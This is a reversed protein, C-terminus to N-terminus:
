ETITEQIIRLGEWASLEGKKRKDLQVFFTYLKQNRMMLISLEDHFAQIEGDERQLLNQNLEETEIAQLNTKIIGIMLALTLRLATVRDLDRDPNLNRDPNLDRYLDRDLEHNLDLCLDRYLDRYRYRYRDLDRYLDRYLDLDRDLDRSRDRDLYRELYRDLYRDLELYRDRYLYLNRNRDCYLDCYRELDLGRDFDSEKINVSGNSQVGQLQYIVGETYWYGAFESLLPNNSHEESMLLRYHINKEARYQTLWQCFAVGDEARIGTIPQEAMGDQFRKTTWHDPQYAKGEQQMEDIFLQYEACSILEKDIAKADDLRLLNNLRRGLKVEAALTATDPDSSHLGTIIQKELQERVDPDASFGETQCDLALQLTINSPKDLAAQILATADSQVAYLRITEGWWPSNMNEVLLDIRQTEKIEVAALYEQFSKHAFEYRGREKEVLLGSLKEIDTLFDTSSIMRGAISILKQHIIESGLDLDFDRTEYAVM